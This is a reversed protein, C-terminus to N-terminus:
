PCDAPLMLKPMNGNEDAKVHGTFRIGFLDSTEREHFDVSHFVPELSPIVNDEYSCRTKVVFIKPSEFNCIHYVTELQEGARDPYDVGSLSTIFTWGKQKLYEGLSVLDKKDVLLEVQSNNKRNYITKAEKYTGSWGKAIAMLQTDEPIIQQESEAAKHPHESM